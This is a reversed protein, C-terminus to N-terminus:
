RRARGKSGEMTERRSTKIDEEWDLELEDLAFATAGGDGLVVGRAVETFASPMSLM